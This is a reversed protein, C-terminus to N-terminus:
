SLELIIFKWRITKINFVSFIEAASASVSHVMAKLSHEIKWSAM